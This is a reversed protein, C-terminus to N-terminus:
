EKAACSACLECGDAPQGCERCLGAEEAPVWKWMQVYAGPDRGFSVPADDDLELDGETEYKEAAKRYAEARPDPQDPEQGALDIRVTEPLKAPRDYVPTVDFVTATTDRRLQADRAERAAAEASDATVDIEWKVNYEM